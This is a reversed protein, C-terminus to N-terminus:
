AHQKGDRALCCAMSVGGMCLWGGQCGAGSGALLALGRRPARKQGAARASCHVSRHMVGDEEFRVLVDCVLRMERSFKPM